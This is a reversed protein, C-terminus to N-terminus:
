GRTRCSWLNTLCLHYTGGGHYNVYAPLARGDKDYDEPYYLRCTIKEGGRVPIEIERIEGVEPGPEGGFSVIVPNARYEEITMDHALRRGAPINVAPTLWVKPNREFLLTITSVM